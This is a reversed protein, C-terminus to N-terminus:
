TAIYKALFEDIQQDTPQWNAGRIERMAILGLLSLAGDASFQGLPRRRVV